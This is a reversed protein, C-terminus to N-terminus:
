PLIDIIANKKVSRYLEDVEEDTVAICGNTWDFQRHAKGILGKGNPLGHIKIDGGASQGMKQAYAIDQENPYSIGLNKHYGSNPNRDNITYRGEPTREDGEFQKHGIPSEGLAIVYEKLLINGAFAQMRRKSKYVLLHDVITNAPLAQDETYKPTAQASTSTNASSPPHTQASPDTCAFIGASLLIIWPKVSNFCKFHKFSM